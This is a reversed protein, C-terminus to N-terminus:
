ATRNILIVVDTLNDAERTGKLTIKAFNDGDYIPIIIEPSITVGDVAFFYDSTDRPKFIFSYEKTGMDAIVDLMEPTVTVLVLTMTVECGFAVSRFAIKQTKPNSVINSGSADTEGLKMFMSDQGGIHDDLNQSLLDSGEFSGEAIYVEHKRAFLKEIFPASMAQGNKKIKSLPM